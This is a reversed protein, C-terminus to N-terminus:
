VFWYTTFHPTNMILNIISDKHDTCTTLFIFFLTRLIWLIMLSEILPVKELWSLTEIVYFSFSIGFRHMQMGVCLTYFPHCADGKRSRMEVSVSCKSKASINTDTNKWFNKKWATKLSTAVTWASNLSCYGCLQVKWVKKLWDTCMMYQERIWLNWKEAVKENFIPGVTSNM